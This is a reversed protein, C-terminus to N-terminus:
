NFPLEVVAAAEGTAGVAVTDGPSVERRLIALAIPGYSPSRATSGVTGVLKEATHVADGTAVPGDAKLRLGRLHRNPKGKYHLRAVTEQGVYCGKTFSVARDNLGAEQPITEDTMDVGLRPRGSEIRLCEVVEESVPEVALAAAVDVAEAARCVVDVGLDTAVYIGHEGMVWAHEETPVEADLGTRAAPGILSIVAWESSVDVTTVDRGISYVRATRLLAPFGARDCDIWIWDSSRLVRMDALLKGKHNLLAAYCGEGPALGEIDNTLQGQLFEAGETGTLRLKGRDAREFLGVAERLRDYEATAIM